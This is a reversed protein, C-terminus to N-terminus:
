EQGSTRQDRLGEVEGLGDGWGAREEERGM